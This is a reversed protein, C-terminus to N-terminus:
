FARKLLAFLGLMILILPLCGCGCGRSTYVRFYPRFGGTEHHYEDQPSNTNHSGGFFGTDIDEAKVEITKDYTKDYNNAQKNEANPPSESLFRKEAM